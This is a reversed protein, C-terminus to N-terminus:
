SSGTPDLYLNYILSKAGQRMNRGIMSESNGQNLAISIRGRVGTCTYSIAGTSVLDGAHLPRYSGFDITTANVVCGFARADGGSAALIALAALLACISKRM